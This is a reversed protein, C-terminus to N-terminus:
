KYKKYMAKLYKVYSGDYADIYKKSRAFETATLIGSVGTLNVFEKYTTPYMDSESSKENSKSSGSSSSSSAKKLSLQYERDKNEQERKAQAQKYALEKEFETRDLEDMFVEFAFDRDNEWAKLKSSFAEFEAESMSSLKELLYEGDDYYRKVSDGYKKYADDDLDRLLSIDLALADGKNKYEDYAANRLELAIDNLQTLYENYAENGATVAYSNGYGGTLASAKGVTDEMAKKGNSIYLEKYQEYLPDATMSYSFDGRNLIENLIEDIKESYQSKYEGPKNQEWQDLKEKAELLDDSQTYIPKKESYTFKKKNSTSHSRNKEAM